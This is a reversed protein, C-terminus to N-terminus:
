NLFLTIICYNRSFNKGDISELLKKAEFLNLHVPLEKPMKPVELNLAPNEDIINNKQLYKFFGRLSSIKRARARAHNDLESTTYNLYNLLDGFTLKKVIEIHVFRGDSPIEVSPSKIGNEDALWQFFLKMDLYYQDVTKQSLNQVNRKYFLFERCFGPVSEYVM